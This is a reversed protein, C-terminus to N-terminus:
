PNAGNQTLRSIEKNVQCLQKRYAEERKACPSVVCIGLSGGFGILAGVIGGWFLGGVTSSIVATIQPGEVSEIDKELRAKSIQFDKVQDRRHAEARENAVQQELVRIRADSGDLRRQIDDRLRVANEAQGRLVHEQDQWQRLLAGLNAREQREVAIQGDLGNARNRQEQAENVAQNLQRGLEANRQAAQFLAVEGQQVQAELRRQMQVQDARAQDLAQLVVQPAAQNIQVVNRGGMQPAAGNIPAAVGINVIAVVPNAM